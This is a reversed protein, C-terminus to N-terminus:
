KKRIQHWKKKMLFLTHLMPQNAMKDLREETKLEWRSRNRRYANAHPQDFINSLFKVFTPDKWELPEEGNIFWPESLM